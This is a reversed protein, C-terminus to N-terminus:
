SCAVNGGDHDNVISDKPTDQDVAKRTQGSLNIVIGLAEKEERDDCFIFTGSAQTRGQNDFTVYSDDTFGVLRLINNGPLPDGVRLIEEGGDLSGSSNDDVFIIWGSNWAGSGNCTSQDSSACITVNQNLKVAETRVFSLAGNMSNIQGTLRNNQITSTFNPSGIAVVIALVLVTIMLEILSFGNKM